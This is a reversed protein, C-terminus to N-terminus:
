NNVKFHVMKTGTDIVEFTYNNEKGYHIIDKLAEVTHEKVDHMLVINARNKYLNNVVNRYVCQKKNVVNQKACQWADSADVNWDYYRYGKELVQSTLRTMIGQNYHKSVTNNSGGPFRILKTEYGTIRKVRDSVRKLDEFYNEESKYIYSYNHSATHLAISHGEDFERKVLEDPGNATVFFTAKVGEEKLIDLIRNTTGLNPGDDFTLYIAGTKLTGSEPDTRKSVIVSRKRQVEKGSQDMVQYTLTYTGLKKTDVTGTVVVKETLDGDCNDIATYGPEQYNGNLNVYMTESGKLTIVPDEEDIELIEREIKTSNGSTDHVSYTIKGKQKKIIIQDSLDGEYEDFAKVGEEKYTSNPCIKVQKDGMLEITPAKEDVVEVVRKKELRYSSFDLTYTIYYTGIKNTDVTGTIKIEKTYDKGIYKATAGQDEYKTHYSIRIKPEGIIYIKPVISIFLFFGILSVILAICDFLLMTNKHLHPIKKKKKLPGEVAIINEIETEGFIENRLTLEEELNEEKFIKRALFSDTSQDFEFNQDIVEEPQTNLTDLRIQERKNERETNRKISQTNSLTKEELRDNELMKKNKNSKKRFEERTISEKTTGANKKVNQQLEQISNIPNVRKIKIESTNRNKGQKSKGKEQKAMSGGRGEVEKMKKRIMLSEKWLYLFVLMKEVFISM